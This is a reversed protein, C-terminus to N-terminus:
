RGAPLTLMGTWFMLEGGTDVDYRRRLELRGDDAVRYLLLAAPVLEIGTAASGVPIPEITAAILLRGDPHLSFTRVHISGSAIHQLVQPRGSEPDIRYVALNDQGGDRAVPWGGDRRLRATRNAQYVLGPDRPHVHIASALQQTPLGASSNPHGGVPDASDDLSSIVHAPREGLQEGDLPWVQLQNQREVSVYVFRGAPDLDLHRPGFGYGRGDGPALSARDRLRGQDFDYVKLAGPDEARADSADNGRTVLLVSAGSATVIVQHAYIGTDLADQEIPEQYVVEVLSGGTFDLGFNLGRTALSIISGIILLISIAVTVRRIGMFNVNANPNFFEM